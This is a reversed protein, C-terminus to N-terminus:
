CDQEDKPEWITTRGTDIPFLEDGLMAWLGYADSTNVSVLAGTIGHERAYRYAAVAPNVASIVEVGPEALVDPSLGDVDDSCEVHIVRGNDDVASTAVYYNKM